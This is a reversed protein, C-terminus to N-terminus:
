HKEEAREREYVSQDFYYASLYTYIKACENFGESKLKEAKEKYMNSIRLEDVGGTVTYAGRKNIISGAFSSVLDKSGHKEIYERIKKAPVIGDEDAPAYAFVRGLVDDIFPSLGYEKMLAIFGTMWEDFVDEFFTGNILGPCFQCKYWLSFSYKDDLYSDLNKGERRYYNACLKFYYEPYKAFCYEVFFTDKWRLYNDMEIEFKCLSKKTEEPIQQNSLYKLISEIEYGDNSSFDGSCDNVSILYEYLDNASLVKKYFYLYEIYVGKSGHEKVSALIRLLDEPKLYDEYINRSSWYVKKAENPLADILDLLGDSFRRFSTFVTVLIGSSKTKSLAYTAMRKFQDFGTSSVAFAYGSLIRLSSEKDNEVILDFLSKDFTGSGYVRAIYTGLCSFNQESFAGILTSLALGKEKFEKLSEERMREMDEDNKENDEDKFPIPDLLVRDYVNQYLYYYGYEQKSYDFAELLRVIRELREDTIAWKSYKYFRNKYIFRRLIYYLSAKGVDDLLNLSDTVKSVFKDIRENGFLLVKDLVDDIRKIDLRMEDICIDIYGCSVDYVYQSSVRNEIEEDVIFPEAWNTNIVANNTPLNNEIIQWMKDNRTIIERALEIKQERLSAPLFNYWTCFVNNLLDKVRNNYPFMDAVLFITERCYEKRQILRQLSSYLYFDYNSILNSFSEPDRNFLKKYLALTLDPVIDDFINLYRSYHSLDGSNDISSILSGFKAKIFEKVDYDSYYYVYVMSKSMGSCIDVRDNQEVLVDFAFNIFHKKKKKSIKGFFEHQAEKQYAISYVERGSNNHTMVFVPNNGLSYKKYIAEVDGIDFETEILNNDSVCWRNILFLCLVAGFDASDIQYGENFVFYNVLLKRQLPVFLGSTENVYDWADNKSLGIEVLHNYINERTRKRLKLFSNKNEHYNIGDTIIINVNNPILELRTFAFFPVVISDSIGTNLLSNWDDINTVVKINQYNNSVLYNLIRYFAEEVEYYEIFINEKNQLKKSLEEEIYFDDLDYYDLTLHINNNSNKTLGEEILVPTIFLDQNTVVAKHVEKVLENTDQVLYREYFDKNEDKIAVILADAFSELADNSFTIGYDKRAIVENISNCITQKLDIGKCEYVMRAVYFIDAHNFVDGGNGLTKAFLSVWKGQKYAKEIIKALLKIIKDM